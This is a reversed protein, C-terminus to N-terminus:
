RTVKRNNTILKRNRLEKYPGYVFSEAPPLSLARGTHLRYESAAMAADANNHFVTSTVSASRSLSGCNLSYDHTGGLSKPGPSLSRACTPRLCKCNHPLQTYSSRSLNPRFYNIPSRIQQPPLSIRQTSALAQASGVLMGIGMMLTNRRM